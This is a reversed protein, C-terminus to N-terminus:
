CVRALTLIDVSGAGAQKLLRACATATAGTTYVDDIVIIAREAIIQRCKERINFAGAVNRKRCAYNGEQPPTYRHRVLMDPIYDFHKKRAFNQALVAAQNYRRKRLRQKHLPVPIVLASSLELGQSAQSLLQAFFDGYDTRDGHKFSIIMHRSGDDYRLAARARRFPPLSKLCAACLAGDSGFDFPYGCCACAPGQLFDLQRWCDSCIRGADQVGGGCALCRPPLLQDLLHRSWHSIRHKFNSETM